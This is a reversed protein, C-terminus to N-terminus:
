EINQAQERIRELYNKGEVILLAPRKKKTKSSAANLERLIEQTLFDIAKGKPAPKKINIKGRLKCIYFSALSLEEDIDEKGNEMDRIHPKQKKIKSLNTALKKLNSLIEKKITKGEKKKFDLLGDLAKKVVPLVLAEDNKVRPEWVIAQPLNLIDCMKIDQKLNYKKSLNKVKLVYRSVMKEDIQVNKAQSKTLFVFVEVKGRTIKRKIERKIKAELLIDETPLNHTTIDLYKFNLSRIVVQVAQSNKGKEVSSYATMSRM